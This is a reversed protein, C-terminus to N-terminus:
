NRDTKDTPDQLLRSPIPSYSFKYQWGFCFESHCLKSGTVLHIHTESTTV